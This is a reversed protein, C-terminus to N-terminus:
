DAKVRNNLFSFLMFLFIISPLASAYPQKYIYECQGVNCFHCRSPSNSLYMVTLGIEDLLEKSFGSHQYGGDYYVRKVKKEYTVGEVEYSCVLPDYSIIRPTTYKGYKKFQYEYIPNGFYAFILFIGIPGFIGMGILVKMNDTM